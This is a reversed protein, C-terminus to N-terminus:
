LYLELFLGGLLSTMFVHLEVTMNGREKVAAPGSM